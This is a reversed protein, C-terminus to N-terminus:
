ALVEEYAQMTLAATNEWSFKKAREFGRAALDEVLADDQILRLMAERIADRDYPDVLLAADGAVEPLSTTNSTLVPCGCRMAELVPLGFGEALSVFALARANSLLMVIDITSLDHIVRIGASQLMTANSIKFKAIAERLGSLALVFLVGKRDSEPIALFAALMREINKRDDVRGVFLLYREGPAVGTRALLEPSAPTPSFADGAALPTTRILSAKEPYREAISQAVYDSPTLIMSADPALGDIFGAFRNRQKADSINDMTLPFLDHATVVYRRMPPRWRWHNTIHVLDIDSMTRLWHRRQLQQTIPNLLSGLMLDHQLGARVEVKKGGAVLENVMAICSTRTLAVIEHESDIAVIHRLLERAYRDIGGQGFLGGADFGIKM